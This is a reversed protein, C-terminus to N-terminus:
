RLYVIILRKVRLELRNIKVLIAPFHLASFRLFMLMLDDFDKRRSGRHFYVLKGVLVDSTFANDFHYNNDGKTTLVQVQGLRKINMLRHAVLKGNAKFVVIDGVHLLEPDCKTVCGVDGAQLTPYMSFGHMRFSISHHEILLVEAFALMDRTIELRTM